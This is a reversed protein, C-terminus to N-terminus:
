FFVCIEVCDPKIISVVIIFKFSEHWNKKFTNKLGSFIELLYQHSSVFYNKFLLNLNQEVRNEKEPSLTTSIIWRHYKLYM